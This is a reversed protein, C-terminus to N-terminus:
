TAAGPKLVVSIFTCPQGGIAIMGHGLSSDYFVSDGANLIEVHGDIALKLSGSLIYNLEQGAHTSLEIPKDQQEHAFPATVVFPECLKNKFRAALHSYQFSARRKIPLGEGARVVTYAALHPAEGTILEVIDVGFAGACKYLFTFSFDTTGSALARYEEITTGTHAAMEEISLGIIERLAEIRTAIATLEYM